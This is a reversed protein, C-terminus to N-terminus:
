TSNAPAGAGRAAWARVGLVVEVLRGVLSHWPTEDQRVAQEVGKSAPTPPPDTRAGAAHRHAGVITSGVSIERDIKGAADTAAQVQQLLREWTGGVRLLRM